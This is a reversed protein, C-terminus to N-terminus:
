FRKNFLEMKNKLTNHLSDITTGFYNSESDANKDFDLISFSIVKIGDVSCILLLFLIFVNAASKRGPFLSMIFEAAFIFFYRKGNLIKRFKNLFYIINEFM